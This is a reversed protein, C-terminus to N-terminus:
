PSSWGRHELATLCTTWRYTETESAHVISDPQPATLLCPAKKRIPGITRPGRAKAPSVGGCGLTHAKTAAWIRFATEDLRGSMAHYKAETM